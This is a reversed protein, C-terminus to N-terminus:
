WIWRILAVFIPCIFTILVILTFLIFAIINNVRITSYRYLGAVCWTNDGPFKLNTVNIINTFEM